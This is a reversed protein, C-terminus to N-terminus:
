PSEGATQTDHPNDIMRVDEMIRPLEGIIWESVIIHNHAQIKGARAIPIKKMKERAVSKVNKSIKNKNEIKNKGYNNRSVQGFGFSNRTNQRAVQMYQWAQYLPIVRTEGQHNTMQVMGTPIM